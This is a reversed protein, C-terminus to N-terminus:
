ENDGMLGNDTGWKNLDQKQIANAMLDPFLEPTCAFCPIGLNTFIQALGQDYWPKGDDSLALLTIVQVGNDVLNAARKILQNQNGGEYLDTILVLITDQPKTILGECYQVAKNIDTGGGLQTGFLLDIPDDLNETLDAVATDFVIMQTSIAKISALVAGFISSYVVSSAMSGSQDICLIIDKLSGRGKRGFGILKEPIVTKYKPLYNKLNARITAEWNIENLKPRPNRVSRSLAGKVAQLMPQNLKKQLDEVVKQVVRRATDKTQNPIISKLNLLTAVLHVDAEVLELSEKELLMQQLGLRDYADKQMVQVIPTPFYKRIDGLWRQVKPSSGGLGGKREGDADYLQGLVKDMGLQEGQLAVGTGDAEGGGLVLRWRVLKEKEKNNM